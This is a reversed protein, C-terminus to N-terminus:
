WKVGSRWKNSLLEIDLSFLEKEGSYFKLYNSKNVRGICSFESGKMTEEFLKKDKEEIEVVFRGQTESFLYTDIKRDKSPIKSLYIEAGKRGGIAMESICTSFGGDSCDHCARILNKNIAKYIKKILKTTKAPEPVPVRGGNFNYTRFFQSGGMERKTEGCIYILNEEKKLDSSIVNDINEIIGLGSILLTGPISIKRRKEDIFYNNLSDKGSIFPVKYKLAFDKCGNVCRVLSGLQKKDGIDGWCFNDLIFIKEPNTGVCVLNRITEEICCGAMYYPDIDGYFPNIGCGVAIGYNKDYHVKLVVADSPGNQGILPKLITRSQVEHDYQRIVEEKSSIVPSSIVKLIGEKLDIKKKCKEKIKKIEFKSELSKKQLGKHLFKMDIDCIIEDRFHIILKGTKEFKGIVSVDVDESSFLEILEKLKNEPVSLVMREQSESIWIEWGNLGEYKLPVKDLYVVAGVKEGMEGIASSLGGAGCDTISNYMDKDRAVLLCDLVKKEIIPNGIQVVSTPIDKDLSTSSFTAGHIGDRGTKGGVVVIYDNEVNRKEVKDIPILGVTGCYVLCNNTYREDFIIAGNGTPIGMRNGYDRVGSVVGKFIRKPHLVGESLKEFPTDMNGFCFIDTNLIPKAGLGAGLIDRIVGGIGTGAGGYPELASPHNHTEVKFAVGYKEDLKIIGANDKFVSICLPSNLKETVKMIEKLLVVNKEKKKKGEKEQYKINAKFTKHYCHESWTQAITELECDSPNRGITKFYREIARMEDIDLSLLGKKSIELLQRDGKGIIEIEKAYKM